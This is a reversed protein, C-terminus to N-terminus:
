IIKEVPFYLKQNSLYTIIDKQFREAMAIYDIQIKDIYLPNHVLSNRIHRLKEYRIELDRNNELLQAYNKAIYIYQSDKYRYEYANRLLVEISSWIRLFQGLQKEKSKTNSAIVKETAEEKVGICMRLIEDNGPYLLAETLRTESEWFDDTNPIKFKYVLRRNFDFDSNKEPAELFIDEEGILFGEQYYPRRAAPPAISILRISTMEAESNTSIRSIYYPMALVYIYGFQSQNNLLAFSCAVRLSQSVDLLPTNAVEYHQLLSWQILRKKNVIQYGEIKSKKLREALIKGSEVMVKWNYLLEEKSLTGRYISPYITSNAEEDNKNKYDSSQGRFFLLVNQNACALGAVYERLKSYTEVLFGDGLAVNNAVISPNDSLLAESIYPLYKQM